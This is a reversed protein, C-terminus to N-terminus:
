KEVPSFCELVYFVEFVIPVGGAEVMRFQLGSILPLLNM